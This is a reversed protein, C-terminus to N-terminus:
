YNIKLKNICEETYKHDLEYFSNISSILSNLDIKYM